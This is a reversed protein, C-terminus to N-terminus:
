KTQGERLREVCALHARHTEHGPPVVVHTEGQAIHEHCVDCQYQWRAVVTKARPNMWAELTSWDERYTKVYRKRM